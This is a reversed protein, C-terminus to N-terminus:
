IAKGGPAERHEKKHDERVTNFRMKEVLAGGIDLDYAGAYDFIRLLTDALEVEEMPRLPLKDDMLGKRMGELAESVESHVLCLKAAKVNPDQRDVDDWWGAEKSVGHQIKTLRRLCEALPNMILDQGAMDTYM